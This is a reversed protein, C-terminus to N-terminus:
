SSDKHSQNNFRGFILKEYYNKSKMKQHTHVGIFVPLKGSIVDFSAEFLTALGDRTALMLPIKIGFVAKNVNPRDGLQHSSQQVKAKQFNLLDLDQQVSRVIDESITSACARPDVIAQLPNM